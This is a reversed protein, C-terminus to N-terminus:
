DENCSLSSLSLFPLHGGLVLWCHPTHAKHRWSGRTNGPPSHGWRWCEEM